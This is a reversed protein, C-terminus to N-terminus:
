GEGGGGVEVGVMRGVKGALMEERLRVAEGEFVMDGFSRAM